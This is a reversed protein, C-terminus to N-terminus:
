GRFCLFRLRSQRSSSLPGDDISLGCWQFINGDKEAAASPPSTGTMQEDMASGITRLRGTRASLDTAWAAKLIELLSAM